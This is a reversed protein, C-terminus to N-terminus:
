QTLRRAAAALRQAGAPHDCISGARQHRAAGGKHGRYHRQSGCSSDRAADEVRSIVAPTVTVVQPNALQKLLPILGELYTSHTIVVRGM